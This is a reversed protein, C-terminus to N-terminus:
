VRFSLTIETGAKDDEEGWDMGPELANSAVELNGGHAEMIRRCILLGLGSGYAKTTFFPHFLKRKTEVSMGCGNDRLKVRAIGPAKEFTWEILGARDREIRARLIADASNELLNWLTQEVMSPDAQAELSSEGTFRFETGKWPERNRAAETIRECLGRLDTSQRTPIWIKALTLLRRVIADMQSVYILIENLSFHGPDGPALSGSLTQVTGSIGALPERIDNAISAGMEGITAFHESRIIKEHLQRLETVDRVLGTYIDRGEIQAKTVTWYLHFGSGDKRRGVGEYGSHPVTSNEGGGAAEGSQDDKLLPIVERISKGYIEERSYGFLDLAATNFSEIEGSTNLTVIGDPASELVGRIWAESERLNKEARAREKEKERISRIMENFEHTLVGIEDGNELDPFSELEGSAGLNSVHRTLRTLPKIVFSRMLLLLILIGVVGAFVSFIRIAQMAMWGYQMIDREVDAKLLLAAEGDIGPYLDCIQLLNDDIVDYYPTEGNKLWEIIEVDHPTINKGALPILTAKARIQRTILESANADLFRGMLMTGRIAGSEETDIIPRSAVLIPLYSTQIVGTLSAKEDAHQLLPNKLDWKDSPFEELTIANELAPDFIKGWVVKGSLDILYFLNLKNTKMTLDSLNAKIYDANGDSIFRYSDDWASWDHLFLDLSDCEYKLAGQVRAMDERAENRELDVFYPLLIRHQLIFGFVAFMALIAVLILVVKKRISM